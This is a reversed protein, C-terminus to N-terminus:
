FARSVRSRWRRLRCVEPGPRRPRWAFPGPRCRAIAGSCNERRAESLSDISQWLSRCSRLLRLFACARLDVNHAPSSYGRLPLAQALPQFSAAVLKRASQRGRPSNSGRKRRSPIADRTAPRRIGSRGFRLISRGLTCEQSCLGCPAAVHHDRSPPVPPTGTGSRPAPSASPPALGTQDKGRIGTTQRCPGRWGGGRATEPRLSGRPDPRHRAPDLNPRLHDM